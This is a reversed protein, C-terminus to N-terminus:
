IRLAVKITEGSDEVVELIDDRWINWIEERTLRQNRDAILDRDFIMSIDAEREGNELARVVALVFFGAMFLEWEFRGTGRFRTALTEVDVKGECAEINVLIVKPADPHIEYDFGARSGGLMRLLHLNYTHVNARKVNSERLSMRIGGNFKEHSSKM